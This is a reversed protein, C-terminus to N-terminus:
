RDALWDDFDELLWGKPLYRTHGNAFRVPVRQAAGCGPCASGMGDHETQCKRCRYQRVETM